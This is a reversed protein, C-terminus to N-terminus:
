SVRHTNVLVLHYVISDVSPKNSSYRSDRHIKNVHYTIINVATHHVYKMPGGPIVRMHNLTHM